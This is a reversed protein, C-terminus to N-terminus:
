QAISSSILNRLSRSTSLRVKGHLKRTQDEVEIFASSLAACKQRQETSRSVIMTKGFVRVVSLM